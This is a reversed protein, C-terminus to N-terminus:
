LREMDKDLSQFKKPTNKQIPLLLYGWNGCSYLQQKLMCGYATLYLVLMKDTIVCVTFAVKYQWAM